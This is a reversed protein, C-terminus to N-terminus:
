SGCAQFMAFLSNHGSCLWHGHVRMVVWHCHGRMVVAWLASCFCQHISMLQVKFFTLASSSRNPMVNCAWGKKWFAPLASEFGWPKVEGDRGEPSSTLKAQIFLM